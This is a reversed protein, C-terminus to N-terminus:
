LTIFIIFSSGAMESDTKVSLLRHVLLCSACYPVLRHNHKDITQNSSVLDPQLYLRKFLRKTLYVNFFRQVCPPSCLISSVRLRCFGFLFAQCSLPVSPRTSISPLSFCLLVPARNQRDIILLSPSPLPLVFSDDNSVPLSVYSLLFTVGMLLCSVSILFLGVCSFFFPLLFM